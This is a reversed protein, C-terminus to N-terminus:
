PQVLVREMMDNDEHEVIHCHHVYQQETPQGTVPDLVTSPPIFKARVVTVQGPNAKVTEKLGTETPDPPMLKSKLYPALTAVDQQPVGNAGGYRAVYGKADFNYRGMVRFSILHTHMPHTDGTTNVFYWDEVTNWKVEETFESGDEYPHANLNLKWAPTEAGIENLTVMRGMVTGGSLAPPGLATLAAVEDNVLSDTLSGPGPVTGSLNGNSVVFQMVTTLSPAPTKVPSAPNNNKMFLTQGAFNRFDCILDFREAPALVMRTVAVPNLPLLGGETGIITMPITQDNSRAIRLSLIRANCGNLLRFRYVAPQVALTPWIKGNVLMVDGFYEGIWPGNTSAPAVPYLLSGDPNFMRDQVVIPLESAGNPLLPNSGSDFDDRLLYGGALGAVVNMRTDGLLHDHYWSLTAAQENPYTVSQTTHYAFADPNAFPNGDSEGSDIAGHLHTLIRVGGVKNFQMYSSGVNTFVQQFDNPQLNNTYRAAVPVKYKAVIVPGLYSAGTNDAAPGDKRLYGFLTTAPLQSHLKRSILETTLNVAAGPATADIVNDVLTPMPDLYPTLGAAVPAAQAQRGLTWPLALAAGVGAAGGIFRRRTIEGMEVVGVCTITMPGPFADRDAGEGSWQYLLSRCQFGELV